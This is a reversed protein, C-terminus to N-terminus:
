LNITYLWAVVDGDHLTYAGCGVPPREGNVTYTWGSLDGFDMEYLSAIGRVYATEVVDGSIGDVEIQLRNAKVADYLLTLANEGADISFETNQMIVGDSPFRESGALGCIVDCRIEMTVTGGSKPATQYYQAPTEVRILWICATAAAFFAAVTLYTKASRKKRLICLVTIGGCLVAAAATLPIRYPYSSGAAPTDPPATTLLVTDLTQYSSGTSFLTTEYTETRSTSTTVTTEAATDAPVTTELPVTATPQTALPLSGSVSVTTQPVFHATTETHATPQTLAPVADRFLYLPKTRQAATLALYVQETALASEAGGETHAYKGASVRFKAIGDLLTHGDKVFRADRLADIGLASLAIWVQAASEPNEAGYSAYGGSPLQRESLFALARNEADKLAAYGHYPALAQLVMATVDPDGYAGFVTWGGDACQMPLLMDILTDAHYKQSQVGNNVLHLAFVRSMLGLSEANADLLATCAAPVEGAAAIWALAAREKSSASVANTMAPVITEMADAYGSLDYRGQAALAMIYFDSVSEGASPTLTEDIWRQIEGGSQAAEIEAACEQVDNLAFFPLRMGSLFVM